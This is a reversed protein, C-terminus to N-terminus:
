RQCVHPKRAGPLHLPALDKMTLKGHDVIGGSSLSPIRSSPTITGTVDLGTSSEAVTYSANTILLTTVLVTNTRVM